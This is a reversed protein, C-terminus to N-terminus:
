SAKAWRNCLNEFSAAVRDLMVAAYRQVSTLDEWGAVKQLELLDWGFGGKDIPQLAWTAWHHRWDHWTFDNIGAKTCATRHAKGVPNGGIQRTDRYPGRAGTWLPEDDKRRSLRALVVVRVDATWPVVRDRGNKPNPIHFAGHTGWSPDCQGVKVLLNESARLGCDRAVLAIPAVHKNYWHLLRESKALPLWRIREVDEAYSPIEPFKVGASRFIGSLVVRTRELTNPSRGPLVDRTFKAFSAADIEALRRGKFAQQLQRVRLIDSLHRDRELYSLAAEDFAVQRNISAAGHLPEQQKEVQFNVRHSEATARDALGTGHEEVKLSKKGVRVTGRIHWFKGRKRITLM